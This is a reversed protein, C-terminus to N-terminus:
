AERTTYERGLERAFAYDDEDPERDSTLATAYPITERDNAYDWGPFRHSIDSVETASRGWFAAIVSDVMAIEDGSFEALQPDRLPIPRKQQWPGYAQPRVVLEGDAVMEERVPVLRRPAPGKELRMYEQGTISRGHKAYYLFDAYFLIKNLKTAGYAPDLQSRDSVYLILEAMKEDNNM